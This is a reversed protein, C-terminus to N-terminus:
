NYRTLRKECFQSIRCDTEYHRDTQGCAVVRSGSSRNELFKINSDKGFIQRSFEFKMFIQQSFEFKMFIQRSFEFKMFIQQSFEFKMFNQQSFEFKMFIQQSLEFKM